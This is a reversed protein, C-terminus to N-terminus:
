PQGKQCTFTIKLPEPVEVHSRCTPRQPNLALLAEMWGEEGEPAPAPFVLAPYTHTLNERYWAYQALPLAIINLDPREKLGFHHYWLAFTDADSQALLFAGQPAAALIERAFTEPQPEGRPDAGQMALPIRLLFFALVAIGLWMGIPRGRWTFDALSFVAYAIWLVFVLLAPLLYTISDATQYVIAFLSASFFTWLLLPSQHKEYEGVLSLGSAGLALGFLGFQQRLLNFWAAVREMLPELPTGLLLERYSGGSILWAFGQWSQPNGWNVPPNSRASLPLYLYVLCGCLLAAVQGLALRWGMVKRLAWGLALLCAPALLLLTLHNGLGLGYALALSLYIWGKPREGAPRLLLLTWALALITFFAQLGHVEVIVAQSLFLPSGGWAAGAVGAALFYAPLHKTKWSTPWLAALGAALAAPLLSLLAGRFYPTSIPLRQFLQGLLVYTPYGTPHPVGDTLIAALLDGGDAGFNAATPASPLLPLGIGVIAAFVLGPPVLFRWRRDSPSM